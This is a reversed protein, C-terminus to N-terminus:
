YLVSGLYLGSTKRFAVFLSHTTKQVKLKTHKGSKNWPNKELWLHLCVPSFLFRVGQREAWRKVLMMWYERYGPYGYQAQSPHLNNEQYCGRHYDAKSEHALFHHYFVLTKTTASYAKDCCGLIRQKESLGWALPSPLISVTLVASGGQGFPYEVWMFDHKAVFSESAGMAGPPASTQRHSPTPLHKTGSAKKWRKKDKRILSDKDQVIIKKGRKEKKKKKGEARRIWEGSCQPTSHTLPWHTSLKQGPVVWQPVECWVFTLQM